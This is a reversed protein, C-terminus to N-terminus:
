IPAATTGKADLARSVNWDRHINVSFPNFLEAAINTSWRHSGYWLAMRAKLEERTLGHLKELLPLHEGYLKEVDEWTYGLATAAAKEHSLDVIDDGGSRLAEMAVRSSGTVFVFPIFHRPKLLAYFYTMFKLVQEALAGSEDEALASLLPKDYEDVFLAVERDAARAISELESLVGRALGTCATATWATVEPNLRLFEASIQVRRGRADLGYRVKTEALALGNNLADVLAMVYMGPPGGDSFDLHVGIRREGMKDRAWTNEFLTANGRLFEVWAQGLV